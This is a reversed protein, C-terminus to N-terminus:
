LETPELSNDRGERRLNLAAIHRLHAYIARFLEEMALSNGQQSLHLLETIPTDPTAKASMSKPPAVIKGCIHTVRLSPQVLRSSRIRHSLRAPLRKAKLSLM